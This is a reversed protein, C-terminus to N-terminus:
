FVLAACMARISRWRDCRARPTWRHRHNSPRHSLVAPRTGQGTLDHRPPGPHVEMAPKGCSSQTSGVVNWWVTWPSSRFHQLENQLRESDEVLGNRDDLRATLSRAYGITQTPLAAPHFLKDAAIDDHSTPLNQQTTGILSERKAQELADEESLRQTSAALNFGADAAGVGGGESTAGGGTGGSRGNVVGARWLRLEEFRVLEPFTRVFLARRRAEADVKVQRRTTKKLKEVWRRHKTKYTQALKAMHATDSDKWYKVQQMLRPFFKKGNAIVQM